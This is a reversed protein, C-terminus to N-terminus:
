AAFLQNITVDTIFFLRIINVRFWTGNFYVSSVVLYTNYSQLRTPAEESGSVWASFRKMKSFIYEKLRGLAGKKLFFFQSAYHLQKVVTLWHQDMKPHLVSLATTTYGGICHVQLTSHSIEMSVLIEVSLSFHHKRLDSRRNTIVLLPLALSPCVKTGGRTQLRIWLHAYGRWNPYTYAEGSREM